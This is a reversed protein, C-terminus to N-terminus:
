QSARVNVDHHKSALMMIHPRCQRQIVVDRRLQFQQDASAAAAESIDDVFRKSTPEGSGLRFRPFREHDTDTLEPATAGSQIEVVNGIQEVLHLTWEM